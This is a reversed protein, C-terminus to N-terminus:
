APSMVHIERKAPVDSSGVAAPRYPVRPAYKLDAGGSGEYSHDAECSRLTAPVPASPLAGGSQGREEPLHDGLDNVSGEDSRM